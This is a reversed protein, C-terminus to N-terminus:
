RDFTAPAPQCRPCWYAIRAQPGQPRSIVLAACRRCPRGSRGYVWPPEHGSGPAFNRGSGILNARMLRAAVGILADLAADDVAARATWPHLRCQFLSECRYINGIGAVVRQDLLLEGLALWAPRTAARRRVEAMDLPEVLVDPGLEAVGSDREATAAALLEVIPASFCVALRDAAELVIVAHRAPKQWRAGVPYVHWSGTMRMHTHLVVEDDFTVLLSKGRAEVRTVTRGVLTAAAVGPAVSRAATIVRGGIWRRLSAAARFITDGEPVSLADCM